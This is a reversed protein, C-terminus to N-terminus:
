VLKEEDASGIGDTEREYSDEKSEEMGINRQSRKEVNKLNKSGNEREAGMGCEKGSEKSAEERNRGDICGASFFM